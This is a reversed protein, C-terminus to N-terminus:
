KSRLGVRLNWGFGKSMTVAESPLSIPMTRGKQEVGTRLFSSNSVPSITDPSESGNEREGPVIKLDIKKSEIHLKKVRMSNLWKKLSQANKFITEWEDAPNTKNLYCAKIVQNTYEKLSLNAQKAFETTPLICLTWGFDGM